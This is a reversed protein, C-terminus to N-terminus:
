KISFYRIHNLAINIVNSRLTTMQWDTVSTYNGTYSEQSSYILMTCLFGHM